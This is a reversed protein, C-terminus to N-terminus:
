RRMQRKQYESIFITMKCNLSKEYPSFKIKLNQITNHQTTNKTHSIFAESEVREGFGLAL